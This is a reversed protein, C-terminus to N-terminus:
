HNRAVDRSLFPRLALKTLRLLHFRDPPKRSSDRVVEVINEADDVGAGFKEAVADIGSGFRRKVNLVDLLCAVPAPRQGFLQKGEASGGCNM